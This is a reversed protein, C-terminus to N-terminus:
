PVLVLEPQNTRAERSHFFALDNGDLVLTVNHRGAAKERVVWESVDWEYWRKTKDNALKVSDLPDGAQLTGGPYRLKNEDWSTDSASRVAAWLDGGGKSSIAGYLRLRASSVHTVARIDFKLFSLRIGDMWPFYTRAQSYHRLGGSDHTLYGEDSVPPQWPRGGIALWKKNGYNADDRVVTDALPAVRVEMWGPTPPAAADRPAAAVAVSTPATAVPQAALTGAAALLAGGVALVLGAKASATM